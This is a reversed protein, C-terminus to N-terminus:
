LRVDLADRLADGLFNFAVTTIAIALGSFTSVWWATALVSRGTSVMLGWSIATPDGLGLFSLSAEALIAGPVSMTLQVIIPAVSSPLIHRFAIRWKGIGLGRAAEVFLEEKVSLVRSRAIRALGSWGVLAIAMMIVYISKIQFVASIAILLLLSPLTLLGDAIRMILQDAIGGLFGSTVGLSVGILGMIFASGFGVILSTRTGWIIRSLIDRGLSDTGLAFRSGPPVYEMGWHMQSPDYPSIVPALAAVLFEVFLIAISVKAVHERM